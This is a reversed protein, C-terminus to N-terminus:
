TGESNPTIVGGPTRIIVDYANCAAAVAQIAQPDGPPGNMLADSNIDQLDAGFNGLADGLATTGAEAEDANLAANFRPTDENYAAKLWTNVESCIATGQADSLAAPASHSHRSAAHAADRGCGALCGVALAAAVINLAIRNKQRVLAGSPLLFIQPKEDCVSM